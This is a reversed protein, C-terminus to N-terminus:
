GERYKNRQNLQECYEEKINEVVDYVCRECVLHDCIPMKSPMYDNLDFTGNCVACYMQLYGEHNVM